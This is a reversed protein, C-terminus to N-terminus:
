EHAKGEVWVREGVQLRLFTEYRGGQPAPQPKAAPCASRPRLKPGVPPGYPGRAGGTLLWQQQQQQQQQQLPSSPPPLQRPHTRNPHLSSQYHPLPPPEQVLAGVGATNAHSGSSSSLPVAMSRPTASRTFGGGPSGTGPRGGQQASSGAASDRETASSSSTRSQQQPSGCGDCMGRQVHAPAPSPAHNPCHRSPPASPPLKQHLTRVAPRAPSLM